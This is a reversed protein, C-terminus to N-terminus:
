TSERVAAPTGSSVRLRVGTVVALLAIVVDSAVCWQCVADIVALQVVLLYASFAVGGLALAAGLAAATVGPALATALIALYAALGLVAVPVGAVEAYSSRQVTECGGTACLIRDGSYRTYALYAAIGAGAIALAAIAARLRRERM